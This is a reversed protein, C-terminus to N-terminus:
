FDLPCPPRAVVNNQYLFERDEATLQGAADLLTEMMQGFQRCYTPDPRFPGSASAINTYTCGGGCVYKLWCQRCEESKTVPSEHFLGRPPDEEGSVSGLLYEKMGVFRHCPYLSGDVDVALYNRGVGCFFLRRVIFPVSGISTLRSLDRDKLRYAAEAPDHRKVAAVFAAAERRLDAARERDRRFLAKEEPVGTLLCGSAPVLHCSQFGIEKMAALVEGPETGGYLTARGCALPFASLLQKIRPAVEAYSPRGDKFPRQKDQAAPTGDFSIVVEFQNARLFDIAAEDALSANTTISFTFTKGNQEGTQKAYEVTWRILPLNLLPEGGFFSLNLKRNGGSHRILWDVSRCSTEVTMLGGGGYRGADGYCYVCAMNCEQAVMLCLSSTRAADTSLWGAVARSDRELRAAAPDPCTKGQDGVLLGMKVLASRVDDEPQVRPDGEWASLFAVTRDDLRKCCFRDANVAYIRGEVEFRHYPMLQLKSKEVTGAACQLMVNMGEQQMEKGSILM